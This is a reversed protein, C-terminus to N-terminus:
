RSPARGAGPRHHPPRAHRAYSRRSRRRHGRRARVPLGVRVLTTSPRPAKPSAHDSVVVAAYRGGSSSFYVLEVVRTPSTSAVSPGERDKEREDDPRPAVREVRREPPSPREHEGRDAGHREPERQQREHRAEPRRRQHQEPEEERVVDVLRRIPAEVGVQEGVVDVPPRLADLVDEAADSEAARQDAAPEQQVEPARRRKEGRRHHDRDGAQRRDEEERSSPPWPRTKSPTRTYM